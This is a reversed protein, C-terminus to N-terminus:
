LKYKERLLMPIAGLSLALVVIMGKAFVQYYSSIQSFFIINNLFGLILAGFVAGWLNGKGGTLSIGGIVVAAISNLTYGLGSRWEGTATMMLLCLGALAIYISAIVHAFMRVNSVNIGSAYAGEQNSGIAYIYRFFATRSLFAWLMFGLLLILIPFPIFLVTSKYMKYFFKPVYGGAVPLIKMATGLFIASTAYTTILPSLGLKGIAFGNLFGSTVIIMTFGFVLIMLVNTDTMLYACVVSFLSLASGLSMDFSGSIIIIGQAMSTLILPTFYMFNSKFMRFSFFKPQLIANIILLLVMISFSPFSSDKIIRNLLDQFFTGKEHLM